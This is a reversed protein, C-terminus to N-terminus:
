RITISLAGGICRIDKWYMTDHLRYNLFFTPFYIGHYSIRTGRKIIISISNSKKFQFFGQEVAHLDIQNKIDPSLLKGIKALQNLNKLKKNM